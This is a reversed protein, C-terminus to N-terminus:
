QCLARTIPADIDLAVLHQVFIGGGPHTLGHFLFQMVRDHLTKHHIVGVKVATIPRLGGAEAPILLFDPDDPGIRADARATVCLTEPRNVAFFEPYLTRSSAIKM